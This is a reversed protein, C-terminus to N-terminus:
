SEMVAHAVVEDLAEKVVEPGVKDFYKLVVKRIEDIVQREFFRKQDKAFEESALIETTRDIVRKRLDDIALVDEERLKRRAWGAFGEKHHNRREDGKIVKDVKCFYTRCRKTGFNARVVKEAEEDTLLAESDAFFDVKWVGRDLATQVNSRVGDVVSKFSVTVEQEGKHYTMTYQFAYEVEPARSVRERWLVRADKFEPCEALHAFIKDYSSVGPESSM